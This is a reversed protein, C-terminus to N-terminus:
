DTPESKKRSPKTPTENEGEIKWGANKEVMDLATAEDKVKLKNGSKTIIVM